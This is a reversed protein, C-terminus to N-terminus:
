NWSQGLHMKICKWIKLLLGKQRKHYKCVGDQLRGLDAAWNHHITTVQYVVWKLLQQPWVQCFERSRKTLDRLDTVRLEPWDARDM